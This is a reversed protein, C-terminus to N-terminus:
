INKIEIKEKSDNSKINTFKDIKKPKKYSEFNKTQMFYKKLYKKLFINKINNSCKETLHRLVSRSIM